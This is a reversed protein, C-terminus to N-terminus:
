LVYGIRGGLVVGLFCWFLLDSFQDKTWHDSRKAQRNGWWFAFAFGAIYALGYWRIAIPGWIHFIVPDITPFQWFDTPPM